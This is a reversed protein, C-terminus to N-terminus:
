AGLLRRLFAGVLARRYRESSRVDSIPSVETLAAQVAREVTEPTPRQGELVAETKRGRLPTPALSGFSVRVDTLSDERPTYALGVTVVSCEMAPRTGAKEFRFVRGLEPVRLRVEVLLEDPRLVTKGPGTFFEEVPLSRRGGLSALVLRADLLLLPGILDGAPSANALNGGLTARNRVQPSALRDAVQALIPAHEAIVPDLTLDSATTAAGVVLEGGERRCGRLEAIRHLSLLATREPSVMGRRVRVMVDTGGALVWAAAGREHLIRLAQDLRSPAQFESLLNVSL